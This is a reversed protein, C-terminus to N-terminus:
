DMPKGNADLGYCAYYAEDSEDDSGLKRLALSM